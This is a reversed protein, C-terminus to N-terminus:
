DVVLEIEVGKVLSPSSLAFCIVSDANL